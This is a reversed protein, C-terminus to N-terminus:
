RTTRRRSLGNGGDGREGAGLRVRRLEGGRDPERGGDGAADGIERECLPNRGCPKRYRCRSHDRDAGGRSRRTRRRRSLRNRGSGDSAVQDAATAYVIMTEPPRRSVAALGRSLTRSVQPLPNDRCADLLFLNLAAGSADMFALVEDAPITRFPVVNSNPLDANVPILYNAGNVQVGHGAYYFLGVEAGSLAEGFRNISLGMEERTADVVTIVEFGISALSASMDRADNPPNVLKSVTASRYNGNGIVLAVKRGDAYAAFVNAVMVLIMVFRTIARCSPTNM